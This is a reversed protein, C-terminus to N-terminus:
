EYRRRASQRARQAASEINAALPWHRRDGPRVSPLAPASNTEAPGVAERAWSIPTAALAVPVRARGVPRELGPHLRSRFREQEQDPVWAASRIVEGAVLDNMKVMLAVTAPLILLAWWTVLEALALLAALLIAGEFFVFCLAAGPNVYRLGLARAYLPRQRQHEPALTRWTVNPRGRLQGHGAGGGTM